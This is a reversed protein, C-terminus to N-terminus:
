SGTNKKGYKWWREIIFSRKEILITCFYLMSLAALSLGISRGWGIANPLFVAPFRKFGAWWEFHYAGFTSGILLGILVFLYLSFGEGIRQLTGLGCGGALVMGFGFIISGAITHIGVSVVRGPLESGISVAHYQILSIGIFSVLAMILVARAMEFNRFLISDSIAAYFCIGSRHLVYGAAMSLLWIWLLIKSYFLLKLGLLAIFVIVAAFPLKRFFYKM